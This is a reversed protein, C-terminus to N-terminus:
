CPYVITFHPLEWTQGRKLWPTKKLADLRRKLALKHNPQALIIYFRAPFHNWLLVQLYPRPKLGNQLGESQKRVQEIQRDVYANFQGHQYIILSQPRGWLCQIQRLYVHERDIPKEEMKETAIGTDPNVFVVDAARVKEFADAFWKKRCIGKLRTDYSLKDCPLVGTHQFAAVNRKGSRVLGKLTDYLLWDCNRFWDRKKDEEKYKLYEITRGTVPKGNENLYWVVGLKLSHDVKPVGRGGFLHRLLGNNAFDGIDGVYQDQM